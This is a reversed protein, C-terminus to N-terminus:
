CQVAQSNPFIGRPIQFKYKRLSGYYVTSVSLLSRITLACLTSVFHMEAPLQLCGQVQKAWVAINLGSSAGRSREAM